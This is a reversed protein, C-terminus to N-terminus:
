MLRVIETSGFIDLWSGDNVGAKRALYGLLHTKTERFELNM